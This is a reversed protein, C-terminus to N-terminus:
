DKIKSFEEIALKTNAERVGTICSNYITNKYRFTCSNKNRYLYHFGEGNEFKEAKKFIVSEEYARIVAKIGEESANSVVSLECTKVGSTYKETTTSCNNKIELDLGTAKEIESVLVPFDRALGKIMQANDWDRYRNDIWNFSVFLLILGLIFVLKHRFIFAKVSNLINNQKKKATKKSKKAM